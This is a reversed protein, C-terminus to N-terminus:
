EGDPLPGDPPRLAVSASLGGPAPRRPERSGSGFLGGDDGSSGSESSGAFHIRPASRLHLMLLLRGLPGAVSRGTLTDLAAKRSGAEIVVGAGDPWRRLL